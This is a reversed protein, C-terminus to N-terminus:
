RNFCAFFSHGFYDDLLASKPKQENMIKTNQTYSKRLSSKQPKKITKYEAYYEANRELYGPM